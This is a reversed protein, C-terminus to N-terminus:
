RRPLLMTQSAVCRWEGNREVWTDTFRYNHEAKQGAPNTYIQKTAGTVIAIDSNYFLVDLDHAITKSPPIINEKTELLLAKKTMTKGSPSTGVFDDALSREIVAPDNFSAEWEKEMARLKAAITRADRGSLPTAEPLPTAKAKAVPKEKTKVPAGFTQARKKPAATKEKPQSPTQEPAATPIPQASPELTPTPSPKVVPSEPRKPAATEPTPTISSRPLPTPEIDSAPDKLPRTPADQAPLSIPLALGAIVFISCILKM